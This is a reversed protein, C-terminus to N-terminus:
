DGGPSDQHCHACVCPQHGQPHPTLLTSLVSSFSKRSCESLPLLGFLGLLLDGLRTTEINAGGHVKKILKGKPERTKENM